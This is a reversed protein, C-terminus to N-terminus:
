KQVIEVSDDDGIILADCVDLFLGHEVVGAFDELDSGFQHLDKIESIDIDIIYNVSDTELLTKNVNRRFVPNLGHTKLYNFIHTSGFPIVEIPLKTQGLHERVKTTDVLWVNRKSSQAVIKEYLLAAGGGKIGNLHADVEDAGDITVDIQDIDDLDVVNLGLSTALAASKESTAVCTLTLQAQKAYEALKEIFLSATSGSGLGVIMNDEIFDLAAVAATEKKKNVM